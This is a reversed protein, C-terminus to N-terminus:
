APGLRDHLGALVVALVRRHHVQLVLRLRELGFLRGSANLGQLLLNSNEVVMFRRSDQWGARVYTKVFAILDRVYQAGLHEGGM